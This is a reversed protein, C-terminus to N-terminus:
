LYESWFGKIADPLEYTPVLDCSIDFEDPFTDLMYKMFKAVVELENESFESFMSGELDEKANGVLLVHFIATDSPAKDNYYDKVAILMFAPFYYRFARKTMFNLVANGGYCFKSFLFETSVEQWRTDKLFLQVEQPEDHGSSAIFSNGPHPVDNFVSYILDILELKDM